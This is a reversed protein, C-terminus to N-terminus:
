RNKDSPLSLGAPRPPNGPPGSIEIKWGRFNAREAMITYKPSFAGPPDSSVDIVDYDRPFDGKAHPPERVVGRKTRLDAVFELPVVEVDMVVLRLLLLNHLVVGPHVKGWILDGERGYDLARDTTVDLGGSPAPQDVSYATVRARACGAWGLLAPGMTLVAITALIRVSTKLPSRNM